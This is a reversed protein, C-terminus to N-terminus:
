AVTLLQRTMDRYHTLAVRLEETGAPAPGDAHWDARLARRREELLRALRTAAEALVADAEHVARRPDDVFGGVARDLRRGLRDIEEAPDAPVPPPATEGAPEPDKRLVDPERTQEDTRNRSGHMDM